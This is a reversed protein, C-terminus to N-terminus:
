KQCNECFYTGRGGLSIKKIKASKGVCGKRKCLEGQKGYVLFEKQYEGETGDPHVHALESAGGKKLGKKLVDKVASFLKEQELLSLDNAPRNPLIQSLWLADNAYINGVGALKSQDLLLTKISRKTSGLIKRFEEIKLKELADPGLNKIFVINKIDSTKLVEFLGFKRVDNYYLNGGKDLSLVVHTHVGPVGGIIKKSLKSATKLRPGRYILQGTLKIHVFISFGNDLKITIAKGFREVKVIKGGILNAKNGKFNKYLVKVNKIKHGVLFKELQSKVIEVEPLEPM